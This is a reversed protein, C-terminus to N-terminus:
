IQVVLRALVNKLIAARVRNREVPAVVALARDSLAASLIINDRYLIIGEETFRQLYQETTHQSLESGISNIIRIIYEKTSGASARIIRINGGGGRRSIVYYGRDSGFRTDLVYNIQSPVCNFKEALENRQIEAVGDMDQMLQKIFAEIVDSISAM